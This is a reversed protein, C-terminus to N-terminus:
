YSHHPRTLTSGVACHVLSLSFRARVGVGFPGRLQLLLCGMVPLYSSGSSGGNDLYLTYTQSGISVLGYGMM